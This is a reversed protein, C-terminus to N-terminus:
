VPAVETSGQHLVSAILGLQGLDGGPYRRALMARGEDILRAPVDGFAQITGAFMVTTGGGALHGSSFGTSFTQCNMRSLQSDLRTKAEYLAMTSWQQSAQFRSASWGQRTM